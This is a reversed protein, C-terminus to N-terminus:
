HILCFLFLHIRASAIESARFMNYIFSLKDAQSLL